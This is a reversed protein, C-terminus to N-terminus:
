NRSSQNEDSGGSSQPQGTLCPKLIRLIENTDAAATLKKPPGRRPFVLYAGTVVATLSIFWVLLVVLGAAGPSM